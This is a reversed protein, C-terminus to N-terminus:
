VGGMPTNGSVFYNNVAQLVEGAAAYYTGYPSRRRLYVCFPSHEIFKPFLQQHIIM